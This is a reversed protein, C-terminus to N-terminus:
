TKKALKHVTALPLGTLMSVQRFTKGEKRMRQVDTEKDGTGDFPSQNRVTREKYVRALTVRYAKAVEEAPWGRTESCMREMRAKEPDTPPPPTPRKRAAELAERAAEVVRAKDQPKAAAYRAQWYEAIPFAEGQPGVSDGDGPSRDLNMVAGTGLLAMQTLIAAMTEDSM